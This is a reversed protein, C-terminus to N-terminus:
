TEIWSPYQTASHTRETAWLALYANSGKTRGEGGVDLRGTLRTSKVEVLVGSIQSSRGMGVVTDQKLGGGGSM